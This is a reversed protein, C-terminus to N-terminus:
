RAAAAERYCQWCLGKANHKRETTGCSQCCDFTRSWRGTAMHVVAHCARCLTTLNALDNNPSAEGRGKGDQHHVVLDDGSGCRTCRRGDRELVAERKGSYHREERAIRQQKRVRALNRRYWAAKSAAIEAAHDRRYDAQYCSACLGWAMLDGVAGCRECQHAQM